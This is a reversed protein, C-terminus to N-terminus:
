LGLASRVEGVVTSASTEDPDVWRISPDNLRFWNYQQQVFRRTGKKVLAAAEDLTVEGRLYQGIQRYGLGTMAPLDWGYGADVLRRVEEVLGAAIMADVRHDIREYLVPRPRTVGIEFVRYPPPHKAQLETIRQGTTLCVELARIVRRVNRHDIRAAATPDLGALRAHLAESGEEAAQAELEARLEPQPAVEPIRWGELVAAVYQGTGGVLTPLRGRASVDEIARYALAQYEALTLVQNPDVIDILHHPARALEAPTAKATGIDMRRYIQRSDASIIEADLTGALDLSLSTKGAATPGVIVLLKVSALDM